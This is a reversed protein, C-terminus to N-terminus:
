ETSPLASPAMEATRTYVRKLDVKPLESGNVHLHAILHQQDPSLGYEETIAPGVQPKVNIVYQKGQWGSVQDAVGTEASVVSHEGPTFSRGSGAYDLVFHEPEQHVTLYEGQSVFSMLAHMQPSHELLDSGHPGILGADDEQQGSQDQQVPQGRRGQRGGGMGPPPLSPGQNARRSAIKAAAQRLQDIVKQPDDSASQDFKWAGGLRVGSPAQASPGTACGPLTAAFGAALVLLKLTRGHLM